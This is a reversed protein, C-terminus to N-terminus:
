LVFSQGSAIWASINNERLWNIQVNEVHGDFFSMNATNRHNLGLAGDSEFLSNPYWAWWSRDKWVERLTWTDAIAFVRSPIKMKQINYMSSTLEPPMFVFNGMLKRYEVTIFPHNPTSLSFMGYSCWVENSRDPPIRNRAPCEWTGKTMYGGDRMVKSWPTSSGYDVQYYTFMYPGYDVGYQQVGHMNQKLNNSCQVARARERASNLAPLLLGALIAIIAIVVLLEILSFKRRKM